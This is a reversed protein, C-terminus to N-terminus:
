KDYCNDCNCNCYSSTQFDNNCQECIMISEPNETSEVEKMTEVIKISTTEKSEITTTTSANVKLVTGFTIMVAVLTLIAKRKRM